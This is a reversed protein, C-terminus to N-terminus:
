PSTRDWAVCMTSHPCWCLGARVPGMSVTRWCSSTGRFTIPAAPARRTVRSLDLTVEFEAPAHPDHISVVLREGDLSLKADRTDVYGKSPLALSRVSRLDSGLQVIRLADEVDSELVYFSGRSAVATDRMSGSRSSAAEDALLMRKAVRVGRSDYTTAFFGEVYHGPSPEDMVGRTVILTNQGDTAIASPGWVAVTGIEDTLEIRLDSTLHAYHLDENWAWAMVDIHDGSRVLRASSVASRFPLAASAIAEGRELDWETITIPKDADAYDQAVLVTGSPHAASPAQGKALDAEPSFGTLKDFPKEPLVFTHKPSVPAPAAAPSAVAVSAALVPASPALTPAVVVPTANPAAPGTPHSSCAGLAIMLLTSLLRAKM